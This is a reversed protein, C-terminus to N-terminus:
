PLTVPEHRQPGTQSKGKLMHAIFYEGAKYSSRVLPGAAIYAFGMAEGEKKWDEFRAPEVYQQVPLHKRTPQLYQGLTLVSVGENLLDHMTRFIEADTEGVGLMLSSKTLVRRGAAEAHRKYLQLVKLSQDYGARPDRIHAQLREVTEVNHALVDVPAEAMTRICDEHGRWDPTLTEVLIGPTYQKTLEATRAFHAAGQDPLDDRDVSTIVIYTLGMESITRATKEPENHDIRGNPNGSTVACFRCGRTCVDGLIMFTATGGTWCEYINPCHAEECVTYLDRKRLARTIRDFSTNRAMRVKLWAPKAPGRPETKLSATM